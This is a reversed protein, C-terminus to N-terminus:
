AVPGPKLGPRFPRENANIKIRILNPGGFREANQPRHKHTGIGAAQLDLVGTASSEVNVFVRTSPEKRTVSAKLQVGAFGRPTQVIMREFDNGRAFGDDNAWLGPFANPRNGVQDM